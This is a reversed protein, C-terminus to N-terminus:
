RTVTLVVRKRLNFVIEGWTQGQMTSFKIPVAGGDIHAKWAEAKILPIRLILPVLIAPDQADAPADFKPPVVEAPNIVVTISGDSHQSGALYVGTQPM